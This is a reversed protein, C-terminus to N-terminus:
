RNREVIPLDNLAMFERLVDLELGAIRHNHRSAPRTRSTRDSKYLWLQPNRTNKGRRHKRSAQGPSSCAPDQLVSPGATSWRVAAEWHWEERVRNTRWMRRYCRSYCDSDPPPMAEQPHRAEGNERKAGWLFYTGPSGASM